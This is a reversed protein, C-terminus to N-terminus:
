GSRRGAREGRRRAPSSPVSRLEQDLRRILESHVGETASAGRHAAGVLYGLRLAAPGHPRRRADRSLGAAAEVYNAGVRQVEEPSSRRTLCESLAVGDIRVPAPAKRLAAMVQDSDAPCAAPLGRDSDKGCGGAVALALALLLVFGTRIVSSQRSIVAIHASKASDDGLGSCKVISGPTTEAETNQDGPGEM